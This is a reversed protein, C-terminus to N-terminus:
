SDDNQRGKRRRNQIRRKCWVVGRLLPPCIGLVTYISKYQLDLHPWAMGHLKDAWQRDSQHLAVSMAQRAYARILTQLLPHQYQEQARIMALMEYYAV